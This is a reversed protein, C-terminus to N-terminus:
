YECPKDYRNGSLYMLIADCGSHGKGRMWIQKEANWYKPFPNIQVGGSNSNKIWHWGSVQPNNPICKPQEPIYLEWGAIETSHKSWLKVSSDEYRILYCQMALDTKAIIAVVTVKISSGKSVLKDGIKFKWEMKPEENPILTHEEESRIRTYLFKFGKKHGWM